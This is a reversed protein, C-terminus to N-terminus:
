ESTSKCKKVMRHWALATYATPMHRDTRGDCAPVTDFHSFTSDDLCRWVIAWHGYNESALFILTLGIGSNHTVGIVSIYWVVRGTVFVSVVILLPHVV